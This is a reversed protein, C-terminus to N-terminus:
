PWFAYPIRPVEFDIIFSVVDMKQSGLIYRDADVRARVKSSLDYSLGVGYYEDYGRNNDVLRGTSINPDDTTHTSTIRGDWALIGLRPVFELGEVSEIPHRYQVHLFMAKVEAESEMISTQISGSEIRATYRGSINGFDAFGGEWDWSENPSVGIFIRYGDTTDSYEIRRQSYSGGGVERRDLLQDHRAQLDRSTIYDSKLTLWSAGAYWTNINDGKEEASVNASISGLLVLLTLFLFRSSFSLGFM